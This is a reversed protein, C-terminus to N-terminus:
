PAINQLITRVAEPTWWYILIDSKTANAAKLADILQEHTYGGEGEKGDGDVAIGL